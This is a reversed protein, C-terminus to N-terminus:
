GAARGGRAARGPRAVLRLRGLCQEPFTSPSIRKGGVGKRPANETPIALWRWEIWRDVPDALVLRDRLL